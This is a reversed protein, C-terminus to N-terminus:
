AARPPVRPTPSRSEAAAAAAGAVISVALAALVLAAKLINGVSLHQKFRRM